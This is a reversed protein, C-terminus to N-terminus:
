LVVARQGAILLTIRVHTLHRPQIEESRPMSLNGWVFSFLLSTALVALTVVLATWTQVLAGPWLLWFSAARTLRLNRLWSRVKDKLPAASAIARYIHTLFNELDKQEAHLMDQLSLPTFPLGKPEFRPEPLREIRRNAVIPKVAADSSHWVLGEVGQSGAAKSGPEM